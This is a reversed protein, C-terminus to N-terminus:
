YSDYLGCTVLVILVGAVAFIASCCLAHLCSPTTKGRTDAHSSLHRTMLAYNRRNAKWAIDFTDGIFPITGVLVDIAINVVM